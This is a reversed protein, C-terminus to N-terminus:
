RDTNVGKGLQCAHRRYSSAIGVLGGSKGFYLLEAVLVTQCLHCILCTDSQNNPVRDLEISRRTFEAGTRPHPHTHAQPPSTKRNM